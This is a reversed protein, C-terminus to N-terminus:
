EVIWAGGPSASLSGPLAPCRREDLRVGPRDGFGARLFQEQGRGVRIGDGSGRLGAAFGRASCDENAPLLGCEGGSVSLVSALWRLNVIYIGRGCTLPM